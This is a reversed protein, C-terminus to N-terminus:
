RGLNRAVQRRTVYPALEIVPRWATGWEGASGNYIIVNEWVARQRVAM